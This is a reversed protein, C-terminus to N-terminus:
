GTQCSRGSDFFWAGVANAGAEFELPGRIKPDKGPRKLCLCNLTADFM